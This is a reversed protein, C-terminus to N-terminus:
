DVVVQDVFSIQVAQPSRTQKWDEAAEVSSSYWNSCHQASVAMGWAERESTGAWIVAESIEGAMEGETSSPLEEIELKSVCVM